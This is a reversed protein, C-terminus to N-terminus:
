LKGILSDSRFKLMRLYKCVYPMFERVHIYVCLYFYVNFSHYTVNWYNLPSVTRWFVLTRKWASLHYSVMVLELELSDSQRKQGRHVSFVCPACFYCTCLVATCIFLNKFIFYLLYPAPSTARFNLATATRRSARLEIVLLWITTSLRRYHSRICEEPMCWIHVCFVWVYIFLYFHFCCYYFCFIFIM